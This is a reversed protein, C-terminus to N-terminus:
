NYDVKSKVIKVLNHLEVPKTVFCDIEELNPFLRVFNKKSEEYATIFCVEAKDDVDRIKQYLEYGNMGPMRIDLLLLDYIGAKYNALASFSDNFVDVAFGNDQLTIAFLRAIEQEDDVIMIRHQTNSGASAKNKIAHAASIILNAVYEDIRLIEALNHPRMTVLSDLKFGYRVLIDKLGEAIDLHNIAEDFYNNDSNYTVSRIIPRQATIPRLYDAASSCSHISM